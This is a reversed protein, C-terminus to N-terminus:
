LKGETRYRIIDQRTKWFDQHLDTRSYVKSVGRLVKRFGDVPVRERAKLQNEADIRLWTAHMDAAQLPLIDEDDAWSQTSRVLNAVLPTQNPLHERAFRTAGEWADLFMPKDM